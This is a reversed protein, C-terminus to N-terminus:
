KASVTLKVNELLENWDHFLICLDTNEMEISNWCGDSNQYRENDFPIKVFRECILLKKMKETFEKLIRCFHIGNEGDWFEFEEDDEPCFLNELAKYNIWSCSWDKSKCIRLIIKMLVEFCFSVWGHGRGNGRSLAEEYSDSKLFEFWEGEACKGEPFWQFFLEFNYGGMKVKEYVTDTLTEILKEDTNDVKTVQFSSKILERLCWQVDSIEICDVKNNKIAFGYTKILDWNGKKAYCIQLEEGQDYDRGAKFEYVGNKDNWGCVSDDITFNFMDGLPVLCYAEYSYFSSSSKPWYCGRTQLTEYCWRLRNSIKEEVGNFYNKHSDIIKLVRKCCSEFDNKLLKVDEYLVKPLADLVEISFSLPTYYKNPLSNMYALWPSFTKLSQQRLLFLVLVDIPKLTGRTCYEDRIIIGIDSKLVTQCTILIDQSCSFMVSQCDFKRM